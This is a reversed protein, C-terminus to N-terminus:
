EETFEVFHRTPEIFHTPHPKWAQFIGYITFFIDQHPLLPEISLMKRGKKHM